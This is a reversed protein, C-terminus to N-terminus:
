RPSTLVYKAPRIEQMHSANSKTNLNRPLQGRPSESTESGRQTFMASITAGQMFRSGTVREKSPKREM